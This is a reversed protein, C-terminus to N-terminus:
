QFHIQKKGSIQKGNYRGIAVLYSDGPGWSVNTATAPTSTYIWNAITMSRGDRPGQISGLGAGVPTTGKPYMDTNLWVYTADHIPNGNTDTALATATGKASSSGPNGQPLSNPATVAVDATITNPPAGVLSKLIFQQNAGDGWSVVVTVNRASEDLHRPDAIVISSVNQTEFQSCPSYLTQAAQEVKVSYGDMEPDPVPGPTDPCTSWDTFAHTAHYQRSWGRVREMHKEALLAATVRNNVVVEYQLASNYLQCM